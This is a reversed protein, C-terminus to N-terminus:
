TIAQAAAGLSTIKGGEGEIFRFFVIKVPKQVNHQQM